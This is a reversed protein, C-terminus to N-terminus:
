NNREAKLVQPIIMNAKYVWIKQGVYPHEGLLDTMVSINHMSARNVTTGELDVPKFVATPTIVGSRGVTWDIDLLETEATEDQWKFAISHRPTKATVGLSKGYKVDDFTLVLGDSPYKMKPVTASFADVAQQMTEYNVKVSQVVEFGLGKIFNLQETKSLTEPANVWEFVVARVNRKATVASDLQRVSGSCLNRPNKYDAGEPTEKIKTFDEYSILAEARLVLKDVRSIRNPLNVFTKANNTVLEGVYGNGRTVAKKLAGGEYTLVVTLGDLKWSLAGTKTGLFQKLDAVSKTKGLSLMPTEHSEKPLNSVVEYGVQVSPSNALVTGTIDELEALRDMKADYEYNSMVEDTGQEYVKRARNLEEVLAKMETMEPSEISDNRKIVPSVKIQNDTNGINIANGSIAVGLKNPANEEVKPLKVSIEETEGDKNVIVGNRLYANACNEIHAEATARDLIAVSGDKIVCYGTQGMVDLRKALYWKGVCDNLTKSLENLNSFARGNLKGGGLKYVKFNACEYERGSFNSIPISVKKCNKLEDKTSGNIEIFNLLVGTTGILFINNDM